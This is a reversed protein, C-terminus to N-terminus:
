KTRNKGKKCQPFAEASKLKRPSAKADWRTKARAYAARREVRVPQEGVSESCIRGGGRYQRRTNELQKLLSDPVPINRKKRGTLPELEYRRNEEPGSDRKVALFYELHFEGNKWKEWRLAATESLTMGTYLIM